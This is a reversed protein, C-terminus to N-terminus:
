DNVFLDLADYLGSKDNLFEGEYISAIDEKLFDVLQKKTMKGFGKESYVAEIQDIIDQSINISINM